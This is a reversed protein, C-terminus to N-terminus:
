AHPLSAQVDPIGALFVADFQHHHYAKFVFEHWYNTEPGFKLLSRLRTRENPGEIEVTAHKLFSIWDSKTTEILVYPTTMSVWFTALQPELPPLLRVYWLEGVQGKYGSTCLCSLEDNNILERLRVHPGQFGLHEYIGMRSGELNKLAELQHVNLQFLDNAAIQCYALTDTSNGIRLDYLAWTWFYSRTLPSVPPGEPMYEDEAKEVTRAWSKMEPLGAVGEAFQSSIQQIFVYAAHIPDHGKKILTEIDTIGGPLPEGPRRDPVKTPLRPSNRTLRKHLRSAYQGM